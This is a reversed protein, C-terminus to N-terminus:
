QSIFVGQDLVREERLEKEADKFLKRWSKRAETEKSSRLAREYVKSAVAKKGELAAQSCEGLCLVM